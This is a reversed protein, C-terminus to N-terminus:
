HRPHASYSNKLKKKTMNVYLHTTSIDAHGMMEQVDKLDAGNAVMHAAFSHRLTHPTIDKTIGASKAYYKIIKWFGQRSMRGGTCNMFLCDGSKETVFEERIALYNYLARRAESGFPIVRDGVRSHCTVCQLTMNIDECNLSLMETVRMGTAYLLELMAKDRVEKATNSTPQSLLCDMEEVTLIQPFKRELKPAKLGDTPDFDILGQNRVYHFFTKMSALSRSITASARGIEELYMMYSQLSTKTVKQVEVIGEKALFDAMQILDRQYSIETNATTKQEQHLYTIFNQIEVIM